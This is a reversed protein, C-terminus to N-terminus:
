IPPRANLLCTKPTSLSRLTTGQTCDHSTTCWNAFLVGNIIPPMSLVVGNKDVIVPYVPSDRIIPLYAKLQQDSEYATMLEAASYAKDKNYQM